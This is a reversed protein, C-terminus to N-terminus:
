RSAVISRRAIRHTQRERHNVSEETNEQKKLSVGIRFRNKFRKRAERTEKIEAGAM